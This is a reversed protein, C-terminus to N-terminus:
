LLHDLVDQADGREVHTGRVAVNVTRRAREQKHRASRHCISDSVNARLHVENRDDPGGGRSLREVCLVPLEACANRRGNHEAVKLADYVAGCLERGPEDDELM